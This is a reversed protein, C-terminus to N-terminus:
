FLLAAYKADEVPNKREKNRLEYISLEYKTRHSSSLYIKRV